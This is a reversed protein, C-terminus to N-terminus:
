KRIVRWGGGCRQCGQYREPEAVDPAKITNLTAGAMLVNGKGEKIIIRAKPKPIKAMIEVRTEVASAAAHQLTDPATAPPASEGHDAVADVASVAREHRAALKSLRGATNCGFWRYRGHNACRQGTASNSRQGARGRRKRHARFAHHSPRLPPSFPRAYTKQAHLRSELNLAARRGM